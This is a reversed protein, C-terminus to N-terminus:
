VSPGEFRSCSKLVDCGYSTLHNICKAHSTASYTPPTLSASLFSKGKSEITRILGSRTLNTGAAKIAATTMMATNMGALVNSDFTVGPNYKTNVERFLKIYSDTLDTTAPLFSGTVAGNLIGDTIGLQKLTTVDSGVSGLIWQPAYRARAAAGLAVATASTVGFM